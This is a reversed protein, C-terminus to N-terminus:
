EAAMSRYVVRHPGIEPLDFEVGYSHYGRSEYFGLASLRANAWLYAGKNLGVHKEAADLLNSGFGRGRHAALVAMGRFRWGNCVGLDANCEAYLSLIGALEGSYYAGFHVTSAAEDGPYSSQAMDQGPRLIEHRLLYTEKATIIDVRM